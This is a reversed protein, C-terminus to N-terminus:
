AVPQDGSDRHRKFTKSYLRVGLWAIWLLGAAPWRFWAPLWGGQTILYGAAITCALLSLVIFWWKARPIDRMRRMRVACSFAVGSYRLKKSRQYFTGM